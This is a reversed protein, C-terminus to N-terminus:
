ALSQCCVRGGTKDGADISSFNVDLAKVPSCKGLTEISRGFVLEETPDLESELRRPKSYRASWLSCLLGSTRVPISALIVVMRTPSM